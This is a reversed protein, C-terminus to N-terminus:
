YVRYISVVAEARTLNKNPEFQKSDLMGELLEYKTAHLLLEKEGQSLGEIDTYYLKGQQYKEISKMNIQIRSLICVMEIRTIPKDLDEATYKDKDIVNQMEAVALYPAAWHNITTPVSSFDFSRNTALIVIMKIYQGRTITDEPKFTGDPFGDILKIKTLKDIENLAWHPEYIINGEKDKLIDGRKDRAVIKLDSFPYEIAYTISSIIILLTIIISLIKKM